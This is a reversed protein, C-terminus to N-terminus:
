TYRPLPVISRIEIGSRDRVSVVSGPSSDGPASCAALYAALVGLGWSRMVNRTSQPWPEHSRDALRM